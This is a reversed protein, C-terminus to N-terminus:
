TAEEVAKEADRVRIEGSMLKPLLADRLEALTLSERASETASRHLPSVKADFWAITDMTPIRVQMAKFNTRSLEMFTSGNALSLMDDIRSRMEHFLWWRLEEIPPVVVIFGQNVAAPVQPIAFSGITARSTMFISGPPYLQSACNALGSETITRATSFLYPSALITVDTPTTWAIGGDWYTPESTRPTGGGYVAAVSGFTDRGFKTDAVSSEFLSAALTLSTTVIRDNVAIKDDLATLVAAIAQQLAFPPIALRIRRASEVNFHQQVAGVLHAAIYQGATANIAYCLYRADVSVGPRAIVLDSCNLEGLSEPILAAAGPEGTRVIVIDGPRLQSKRLQQHFEQPIFKLNALDLRGVRVNQSRLFPIGKAVYQSAMSGVHGVTLEECVEQLSRIPWECM